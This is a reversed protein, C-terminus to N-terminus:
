KRTLTLTIDLEQNDYEVGNEDYFVMSGDMLTLTDDSITYYYMEKTKIYGNEVTIVYLDDIDYCLTQTPGVEGNIVSVTTGDANMYLVIGQDENAWVGLLEDKKIEEESKRTLVLGVPMEQRSIENGEADYSVYIEQPITMTDGDLTYNFTETNYSGDYGISKVTFQQDDYEFTLLLGCDGRVVTYATGNAHLHMEIDMEANKWVGIINNEGEAMSVALMCIISFFISTLIVIHKKM